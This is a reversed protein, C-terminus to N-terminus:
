YNNIDEVVTITSTIMGMWCSYVFTGSANPTFEIINVGEILKKQLNFKQNIIKNNCGNINEKDALIIWKTPIGKQIVIPEYSGSSLNTTITQVGNEITAVSNNGNDKPSSIINLGSLNMGRSLMTIGLIVVLVGSIATMNNKFKKTLISSIAGLGFMLPVTGLSFFFMSIAGRIPSATSLAFLQMAQLPGCPMLGNLLGVYLPNNNGKGQKFGFIIPLSINLRRLWPFINLMNIGMIVMFVGAIIEIIGQTKGSFSVVQGLAGVIGGVVTYSIVRGLNYKISPIISDIKKKKNEKILELPASQSLSIGGCMVVCHISTLLGIIFLMSYGMGERAEPFINLITFGGLRDIIVYLSIIIIGIGAYKLYVDSTNKPNQENIVKYDLKEITEIIETLRIIESDYYIELTGKSYSASSKLTGKENNLTNEILRECSVCTMGDIFLKETIFKPM